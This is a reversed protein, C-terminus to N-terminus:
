GRMFKGTLKYRSGPSIIISYTAVMDFSWTRRKLSICPEDPKIELYKRIQIKSKVAEIIHEAEQIPAVELLYDSPTIKYFDQELYHPAVKPNIFRESYQVPIGQDSHIIISHFIPDDPKLNMKQAIDRTLKEQRLVLIKSSHVGGWNAIEKAISKIELLAADPKPRAVFSGVGQVRIIRGEETLEKLARNATMRSANFYGALKTESPIKDDPKFKGSEIDKIVSKKIKDYLAFPQESGAM